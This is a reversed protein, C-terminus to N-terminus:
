FLFEYKYDFSSQKFIYELNKSFYVTDDTIFIGDAEYEDLIKKGEELGAVFVMTSLVDCLASDEAIVTVSRLGSEAPFGTKPDLIHHYKKGDIEFFRQYDGSTVVSLNEARISGIIEEPNKPDAIGIRWNEGTPKKGLAYVNGGLSVLASEVGSEKLHEIVRDTAYGKAVGGLNIGKKASADSLADTVDPITGKNNKVDWVKILSDLYISFLDERAFSEGYAIIKETEESLEVADGRNYRSIESDELHASWMDNYNELLKKADNLPKENPAYATIDCITDFTYFSIKREKTGYKEASFVILVLLILLGYFLIRARSKKM